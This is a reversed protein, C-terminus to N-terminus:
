NSFVEKEIKLRKIAFITAQLCTHKADFKTIYTSIM